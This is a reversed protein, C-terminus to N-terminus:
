NSPAIPTRSRTTFSKLMLTAVTFPEPDCDALLTRSFLMKPIPTGTLPLFRKGDFMAPSGVQYVMRALLSSYTARLRSASTSTDRLGSVALCSTSASAEPPTTM